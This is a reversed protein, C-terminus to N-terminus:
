LEPTPTDVFSTLKARQRTEQMWEGFREEQRQTLTEQRLRDAEQAFASEDPDSLEEPRLLAVGRTTELVPTLQGLPTAFATENVRREYGLPGVAQLRTFQVLTTSLQEALVAEEFRLDAAMREQLRTRLTEARQRAAARARERILRERVADRVEELPPVTPPIRQTLRAIYVGNPTQVVETIKGEDLGSVARLIAPDPGGPPPPEGVTLPGAAEKTLGRTTVIEDFTHKAELDEQLDLTRDTLQKRIRETILAQRVADRVEEFPKPNGDESAFEDQHAEYHSKLDDDTPSIAGALSERSLGAYDFAVQEPRRVEDPRAEYRARVDEETLAKAAEEVFAMPEVLILAVTLQEHARVFAARLDADTVTVAERVSAVLKDVLLDSRLREEFVPAPLGIARLFLHYREPLFRGGEQFAPLHHISAALELDDVRLGRRRAEEVLMLREWTYQNILPELMAEPAGSLQAQLQVRTWRRQEEFMDWAVPKGFLTGARGGPGKVPSRLSAHFFFVFPLILVAAIFWSTRRRAADSVFLRKFM